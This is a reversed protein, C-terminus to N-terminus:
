SSSSIRLSTVGFFMKIIPGVPTPLVCNQGPQFEWPSNVGDEEESYGMFSRQRNNTWENVNSVINGLNGDNDVVLDANELEEDVLFTSPGITEVDVIKLGVYHEEGITFSCPFNFYPYPNRCAGAEEIDSALTANELWGDSIGNLASTFCDSMIYFTDFVGTGEEWYEWYGEIETWNQTRTIKEGIELIVKSINNDDAM